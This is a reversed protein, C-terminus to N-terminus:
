QQYDRKIINLIFDHSANHGEITTTIELISKAIEINSKWDINGDKKQCGALYFYSFPFKPYNKITTKYAIIANETCQTTIQAQDNIVVTVVYSSILDSLPSHFILTGDTEMPSGKFNLKSIDLYVLNEKLKIPASNNVKDVLEQRESKDNIYIPISILVSIIGLVLLLKSFKDQRDRFYSIIVLILGILISLLFMLM